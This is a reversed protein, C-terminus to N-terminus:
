ENELYMEFSNAIKRVVDKSLSTDWIILTIAKEYGIEIYYHKFETNNKKILTEGYIAGNSLVASSLTKVNIIEDFYKNSEVIGEENDDMGSISFTQIMAPELKDNLIYIKGDEEFATWEDPIKLTGYSDIDIIKWGNYYNNHACLCVIIILFVAVFTLKIKKM